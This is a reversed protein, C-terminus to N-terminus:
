SKKGYFHEELMLCLAHYIPLHLEQAKFTEKEPVRIPCDAMKACIGGDSNTMAITKIGTLSAIEFCRKVNVSNGSTSIGIFVDGKRGLVYLQQAYILSADVDNSFATLLAPHSILSIAKLGKQLKEGIEKGESGYKKELKDKFEKEIERKLKFGKMLEGVIHEADSASGGNGCVFLTGGNCFSNELISYAKAINDEISSLQPYRQILEKLINSM